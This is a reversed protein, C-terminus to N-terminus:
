VHRQEQRPRASRRLPSLLDMAATVSMAQTLTARAPKSSGSSRDSSSSSLSTPAAVPSVLQQQPQVPQPPLIPPPTFSPAVAERHATAAAPPESARNGGLGLGARGTGGSRLKNKSRSKRNQFWYFVNADGVQGYEQLQMRIRPIEDRPPNVMGSNFIAELIRIQEPRPNRRPKPDPVREEGVSSFPSSKLSFGGGGTRHGHSRPLMPYPPDRTITLTQPISLPSTSPIRHTAANLAPLRMKSVGAALARHGVGGRRGGGHVIIAPCQEKLWRRRRRVRDGGFTDDDRLPGSVYARSPPPPVGLAMM